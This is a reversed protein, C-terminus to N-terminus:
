WGGIQVAISNSAGSSFASSSAPHMSLGPQYAFQFLSVSAVTTSRAIDEPVPPAVLRPWGYSFMAACAVHRLREGPGASVARRPCKVPFRHGRM